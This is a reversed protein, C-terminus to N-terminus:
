AYVKRLEYVDTKEEQDEITLFEHLEQISISGSYVDSDSQYIEEMSAIAEQLRDIAEEPSNGQGVLGNELCLSVWYEQSKRLIVTYFNM